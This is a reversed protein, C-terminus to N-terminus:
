RIKIKSLLAGLFGLLSKQLPMLIFKRYIPKADLIKFRYLDSDSESM